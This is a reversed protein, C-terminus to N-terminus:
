FPGANQRLLEVFREDSILDKELIRKAALLDLGLPKGYAGILVTDQTPDFHEDFLSIEINGALKGAFTFVLSKVDSIKVLPGAVISLRNLLDVTGSGFIESVPIRASKLLDLIEVFDDRHRNVAVTSGTWKVSLTARQDENVGAHAENTERNSRSVIANEPNAFDLDVQQM